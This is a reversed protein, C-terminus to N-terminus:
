VCAAFTQSKCRELVMNQRAATGFRLTVIRLQKTATRPGGLWTLRREATSQVHGCLHVHPGLGVLSCETGEGNWNTVSATVGLFM